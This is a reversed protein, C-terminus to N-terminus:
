AKKPSFIIIKQTTPTLCRLKGKALVCPFTVPPKQKTLTVVLTPVKNVQMTRATLPEISKLQKHANSKTAGFTIFSYTGTYSAGSAKLSLELTVSKSYTAIWTGSFTAARATTSGVLVALAVLVSVLISRRM